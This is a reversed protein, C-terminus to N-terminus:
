IEDCVLCSKDHRFVSYKTNFWPEVILNRERALKQAQRVTAHTILGSKGLLLAGADIYTLPLGHRLCLDELLPEIKAAGVKVVHLTYANTGPAGWATHREPVCEYLDGAEGMVYHVSAPPPRKHSFLEAIEKASFASPVSHLCVNRIAEARGPTFNRALIRTAARETVEPKPKQFLRRVAGNFVGNTELGHERQLAEVAKETAGDYFGTVDVDLQRQVEAVDDGQMNRHLARPIYKEIRRRKFLPVNPHRFGPVDAWYSDPGKALWPAQGGCYTLSHIQGDSNVAPM